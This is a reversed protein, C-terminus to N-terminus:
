PLEEQSSGPACEARKRVNAPRASSWPRCSADRRELRELAQAVREMAEVFRTDPLPSESRATPGGAGAFWAITALLFGALTGVLVSSREM